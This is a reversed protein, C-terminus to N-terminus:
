ISVHSSNLRTSKRDQPAAHAAQLVGRVGRGTVHEGLHGALDGLAMRVREEGDRVAVAGQLDPVRREHAGDGRRVALLREGRAVVQYVGDLLAHRDPRLLVEAVALAFPHPRRALRASGGGSWVGATRRD